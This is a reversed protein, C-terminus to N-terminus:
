RAVDPPPDESYIVRASRLIEDRLLWNHSRELSRRTILDVPRGTLNELEQKMRVHDFLGWDAGRRFTVLLDLDSDSRLGGRLASGFLELASVEWRRCFDALPATPLAADPSTPETPM